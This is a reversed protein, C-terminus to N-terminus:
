PLGDSFIREVDESAQSQAVVEEQKQRLQLLEEDVSNAFSRVAAGAGSVGTSMEVEIEIM